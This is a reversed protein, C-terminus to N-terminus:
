APFEVWGTGLSLIFLLVIEEGWVSRWPTYHSPKEQRKINQHIMAINISRQGDVKFDFLTVVYVPLIHKLLGVHLKM